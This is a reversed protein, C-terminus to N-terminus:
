EDLLPRIRDSIDEYDQQAIEFLNRTEDPVFKGVDGHDGAVVIRDGAWSGLLPDSSRIDGGGRNNDVALLAALALMTGGRSNGFECLKLGDDFKRPHLYQKKDINVIFHYQGM